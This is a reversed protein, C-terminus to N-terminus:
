VLEVKLRLFRLIFMLCKEWKIALNQISKTLVMLISSTSGKGVPEVEDRGLEDQVQLEDKRSWGEICPAHISFSRASAKSRRHKM